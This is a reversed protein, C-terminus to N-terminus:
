KLTVEKSSSYPMNVLDRRACLIVKIYLLSSVCSMDVGASTPSNIIIFLKRM